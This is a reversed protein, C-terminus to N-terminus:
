ASRRRTATRALVREVGQWVREVSVECLCALREAGSHPCRKRYSAACAVTTAILEHQTGAPGSIAPSTCTFVGVVPTGVAAALHMPGSDNSLLLDVEALVAALQRLTTRGALNLTPRGAGRAAVIQAALSAEGRGGVVVLSGAFRRALESFKEVPWRKTPWGAGPHLALIPRPLPALLDAAWSTQSRLALDITWEGAAVGLAEAIRQYRRYAPVGFGTGSILGHCAFKSGERASELGVRLPAATAVTMVGTRFLGQLDFVLDFRRRRLTTLLALYDRWSGHRDFALVESLQPLGDLLDAFDRRVVWSISAAPFRRRLAGLLPLTQVVDGLASPKILCIREAQCRKLHAPGLLPITRLLPWGPDM